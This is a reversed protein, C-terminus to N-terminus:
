LLKEEAEDEEEVSAQGLEAIANKTKLDFLIRLSDGPDGGRRRFLPGLGWAQSDKVFLRGIPAGEAVRLEYAGSLHKKMGAPVSVIGNALTGSSLKYSLFIKGHKTWGYDSLVRTKRLQVAVSEAQGPSVEIGRLGYVCRAFRSIIPSNSLNMSFSAQNMGHRLCEDELKHSEVRERREFNREKPSMAKRSLGVAGLDKVREIAFALGAETLIWGDKGAGLLYLGNKPKKADSLFTRVNEINIQEPYKRWTFRGPALENSKVAIDETEIRQTDGGLLYVAITVIEHNSLAKSKPATM